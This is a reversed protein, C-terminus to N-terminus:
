SMWLGSKRFSTTPGPWAKLVPGILDKAGAVVEEHTMPNQETGRVADVRETLKTGDNLIVDVIAVRSPLLRELEAEKVLRVKARERVM